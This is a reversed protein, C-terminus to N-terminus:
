TRAQTSGLNIFPVRVASLTPERYFVSCYEAFLLKRGEEFGVLLNIKKSTYYGCFLVWILLTLLSLSNEGFPGVMGGAESWSVPCVMWPYLGRRGRFLRGEGM